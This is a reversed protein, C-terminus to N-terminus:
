GIQEQSENAVPPKWHGTLYDIRGFIVRMHNLYGAEDIFSIITFDEGNEIARDYTRQLHDLTLKNKTM